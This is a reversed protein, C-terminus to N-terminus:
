FVAKVQRPAVDETGILDKLEAKAQLFQNMYYTAAALEPTNESDKEKARAIAFNVLSGHFRRPIRDNPAATDGTMDDPYEYVHIEAEYAVDPTPYFGLLNGRKYYYLPTGTEDATDRENIKDVWKGAVMVGTLELFNDPLAYLPFSPSIGVTSDSPIKAVEALSQYGENIWQDILTADTVDCRVMVATRMQLLNM